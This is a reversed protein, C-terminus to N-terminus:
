SGGNIIDVAAKVGLLYSNLGFGTIQGRAISAIVSFHRFKERAYLNSLHVEIIPINLMALADSIGYSYHTWAGANIIVAEINEDYCRQIREVMDDENNTQFCEIEVELESGFEKIRDNIMDLTQTGYQAPDRKGLANLNIGHLVLIKKM